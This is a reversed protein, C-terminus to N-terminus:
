IVSARFYKCSFFKVCLSILKVLISLCPDTQFSDSKESAFSTCSASTYYFTVVNPVVRGYAGGSFIIYLLNLEALSIYLRPTVINTANVPYSFTNSSIDPRM